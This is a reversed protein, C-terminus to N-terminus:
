LTYGLHITLRPTALSTTLTLAARNTPLPTTSTWPKGPNGPPAEPCGGEKTGKPSKPPRLIVVQFTPLGEVQFTQPCWTQCTTMKIKTKWNSRPLWATIPRQKRYPKWTTVQIA